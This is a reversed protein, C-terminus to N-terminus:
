RSSIRLETKTEKDSDTIYSKQKLSNISIITNYFFSDTEKNQDVSTSRYPQCHNLFEVCRLKVGIKQASQIAAYNSASSTTVQDTSTCM